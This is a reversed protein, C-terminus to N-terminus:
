EYEAHKIDTIHSEVQPLVYLPPSATTVVSTLCAVIRPLRKSRSDNLPTPARPTYISKCLYTIVSIRSSDRPNPSRGALTRRADPSREFPCRLKALKSSQRSANTHTPSRSSPHTGPHELDPTPAVVLHARRPWSGGTVGPM